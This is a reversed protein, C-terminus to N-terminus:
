KLAMRKVEEIFPKDAEARAVLDKAETLSECANMLMKRAKTEIMDLNKADWGVPQAPGYAFRVDNIYECITRIM